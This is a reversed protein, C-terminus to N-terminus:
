GTRLMQSIDEILSDALLSYVTNGTKYAKLGLIDHIGQLTFADRVQYSQDPHEWRKDWLRQNKSLTHHCDKCVTVTNHIHKRGAIHHLELGERNSCIECCVKKVKAEEPTQFVLSQLWRDIILIDVYVNDKVVGISHSLVISLNPLSIM